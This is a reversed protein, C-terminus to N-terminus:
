HGLFCSVSLFDSYLHLHKRGNNISIQDYSDEEKANMYQVEVFDSSTQEVDSTQDDSFDQEVNIHEIKSGNLYLNM